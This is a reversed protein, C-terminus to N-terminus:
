SASPMKSDIDYLKWKFSSAGGVNMFYLAITYKQSDATTGGEGSDSDNSVALELDGNSSLTGVVTAALNAGPDDQPEM